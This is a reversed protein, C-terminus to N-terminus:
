NVAPPLPLKLFEEVTWRHRTVGVAMAPTRSRYRQPLRQGGRERPQPLELRLSQHPRIFHYYGRWWELHLSLESQEQATSWTRRILAPVGQRLPLNVREVFATNLVRGLDLERLKSILESLQGLRMRYEMRVLRRRRYVKKVQGYWLHPSVVWQRKREGIQQGWQGFHATLAYFYHDLGDSSFLPAYGPALYNCLEHVVRHAIAQTRPGLQLVLVVKTEVDLAVWLWVERSKRRLTTRLEDLQLHKLILDHFFRRHVKGSHL